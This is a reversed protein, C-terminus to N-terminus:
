CLEDEHTTLDSMGSGAGTVIASKGDVSFASNNAADSM